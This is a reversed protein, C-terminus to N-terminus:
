AINIKLYDKLDNYDMLSWCIDHLMLINTRLFLFDSYSLVYGRPLLNWGGGLIQQWIKHNILHVLILLYDLEFCFRVLYCLLSFFLYAVLNASLQSFFHLLKNSFFGSDTKFFQIILQLTSLFNDWPFTDNLLLQCFSLSHGNM